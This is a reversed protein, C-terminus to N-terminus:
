GSGISWHLRGQYRKDEPTASIKQHTKVTGDADPFLAWVAGVDLKGNGQFPDDGFPNDDFLNDDSRDDDDDFPAGVALETVGDGDLDGLSAVASGFFDGLDLQGNLGDVESCQGFGVEDIICIEGPACDVDALCGGGDDENASSASAVLLVNVILILLLNIIKARVAEKM